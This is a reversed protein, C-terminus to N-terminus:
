AGRQMRRRIEHFPRELESALFPAAARPDFEVAHGLAFRRWIYRDLRTRKELLAADQESLSAATLQTWGTRDQWSESTNVRASTKPVGIRGSVEAILRDATSIDGVLAFGGLAAEILAIKTATSLMAMRPWPLEFWRELLFHAVPDPPMARVHRSFPYPALGRSVYRMMRYNYWSLMLEAPDRLLISHWTERGPFLSAVSRGIYHGSIVMIEDSKGPLRDDYKRGLLELPVRRTRKPPSWFGAEPLHHAFHAEATSGACKPVHLLIHLPESM